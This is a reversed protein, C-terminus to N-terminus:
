RQQAHDRPQLIDGFAHDPMSWILKREVLPQDSKETPTAVTQHHMPRGM